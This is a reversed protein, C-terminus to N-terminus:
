WKLEELQWGDNRSVSFRWTGESLEVKGVGLKGGRSFRVDISQAGSCVFKQGPELRIKRQKIVLWVPLKNISPNQITIEPLSHEDPTLEGAVVSEVAAPEPESTTNLEVPETEEMEPTELEGTTEEELTPDNDESQVTPTEIDESLQTETETESLVPPQLDPEPMESDAPDLDPMVIDAPDGDEGIADSLAEAPDTEQSSYKKSSASSSNETAPKVRAAVTQSKVRAKELRTSENHVNSETTKATTIEAVSDIANESSRATPDSSVIEAEQQSSDDIMELDSPQGENSSSNVHPTSEEKAVQTSVDSVPRDNEGGPRNLTAISNGHPKPKEQEASTLSPDTQVVTVVGDTDGPNGVDGQGLLLFGVMGIGLVCAVMFPIPLKRLTSTRVVSNAGFDGLLDVLHMTRYM